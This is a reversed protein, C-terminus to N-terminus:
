FLQQVPSIRLIKNIIDLTPVMDNSPVLDDILQRKQILIAAVVEDISNLYYPRHRIVRKKQGLRRARATVQDEVAPNWPLTYHFVHSAAQINLGVGAAIPHIVLVAAGSSASFEDIIEQRRQVPTSGNIVWGPVDLESRALRVIEGQLAVWECSVIIKEGTDKLEEILEFLRTLKVSYDFPNSFYSPEILGPHAAARRLPVFMGFNIKETDGQTLNEILQDYVSQEAGGMNLPIDMSILPPLEDSTFVEESERRLMISKLSNRILDPQSEVLEPFQDLPGFFGPKVLDGLTWLDTPRNELPTGTMAIKSQAKLSKAAISRQTEFNKVAQAEDLIVLNWNIENLVASDRVLTDYTTIVVNAEHVPIATPILVREDGHHVYFTLEPAFKLLERRWNEILTLPVILLSARAPRQYLEALLSIVQITKGLGMEDALIGGLRSGILTSLWRYGTLQYPFLTAELSSPQEKTTLFRMWDDDTLEDYLLLQDAKSSYLRGYSDFNLVYGDHDAEDKPLLEIVLQFSAEELPYWEDGITVHDQRPFFDCREQGLDIVGIARVVGDNGVFIRIGTPRVAQSFHVNPISQTIPRTLIYSEHGSTVLQYIDRALLSLHDGADTRLQVETGNLVLEGKLQGDM